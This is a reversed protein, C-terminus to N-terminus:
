KTQGTTIYALLSDGLELGFLVFLNYSINNNSGLVHGLLFLFGLLRVVRVAANRAVGIVELIKLLRVSTISNRSLLGVQTKFDLM